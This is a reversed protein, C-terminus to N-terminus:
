SRRFFKLHKSLMGNIILPDKIGKAEAYKEFNDKFSTIVVSGKKPRILKEVVQHANLKGVNYM